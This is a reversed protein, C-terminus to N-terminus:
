VRKIAYKAGGKYVPVQNLYEKNAQPHFFMSSNFSSMSQAMQDYNHRMRNM